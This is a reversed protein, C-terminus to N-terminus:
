HVLLFSEDPLSVATPLSWVAVGSEIRGRESTTVGNKSYLQWAVSGGKAWGTGETWVFFTEDNTNSVAIPHKRKSASTQTM